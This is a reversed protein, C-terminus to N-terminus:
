KKKGLEILELLVQNIKSDLESNTDKSQISINAM